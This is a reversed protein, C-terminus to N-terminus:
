GIAGLISDRVTPTGYVHQLARLIPVTENRCNLNLSVSGVSACDLRRQRDFAKRM